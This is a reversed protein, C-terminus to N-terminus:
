DPCWDGFCYYDGDGGEGPPVYQWGGGGGGGTTGEEKYEEIEPRTNPKGYWDLINGTITSVYRVFSKFSSGVHNITATMINIGQQYQQAITSPAQNGTVVYVEYTKVQSEDAELKKNCKPNDCDYDTGVTPIITLFYFGLGAPKGVIEEVGVGAGGEVASQAVDVEDSNKNTAADLLISLVVAVLVKAIINLIFHGDDDTNKYPNNREFSYRNLSQPDYVNQILTDPKQWIPISPNIQRFHFDYTQTASDYEKGEYDFRSNKGGEIIEGYPSYFTNEIVNGALNTILSTSGLHDLHLFEM